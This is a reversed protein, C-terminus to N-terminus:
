GPKRKACYNIPTDVPFSFNKSGMCGHHTRLLATAPCSRMSINSSLCVVASTKLACDIGASDFM